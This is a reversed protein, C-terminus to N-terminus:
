LFRQFLVWSDNASGNVGQALKVLAFRWNVSTTSLGILGSGHRETVNLNFFGVDGPVRIRRERLWDVMVQQHGVILDPQYEEFKDVAERGNRAQAVIELEPWVQGLLRELVDRLLPEDDAILATPRQSKM